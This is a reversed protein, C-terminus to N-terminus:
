EGKVEPTVSITPQGARQPLIMGSEGGLPTHNDEPTYGSSAPRTSTAPTQLHEWSQKYSKAALLQNIVEALMLRGMGSTGFIGVDIYTATVSKSRRQLTVAIQQGRDDRFKISADDPKIEEKEAKLSLAVGARKTAAVAEEMSVEDFSEFKGQKVFAVGAEAGTLVDSVGFIGCGPLALCCIVLVMGFRRDM